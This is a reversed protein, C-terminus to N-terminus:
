SLVKGLAWDASDFYAREHDQYSILCLYSFMSMSFILKVEKVPTHVYLTFQTSTFPDLHKFDILTVKSILPTKRPM